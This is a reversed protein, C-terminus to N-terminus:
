KSSICPFTMRKGITIFVSAFRFHSQSEELAVYSRTWVKANKFSERLLSRKRSVRQNWKIPMSEESFIVHACIGVDEIKEFLRHSQQYVYSIPCIAVFWLTPIVLFQGSLSLAKQSSPSAARSNSITRVNTTRSRVPIVASSATPNRLSLGKHKSVFYKCIRAMM